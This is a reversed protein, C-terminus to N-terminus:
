LENLQNDSAGEYYLTGNFGVAVRSVTVGSTGTVTYVTQGNDRGHMKLNGNVAGGSLFYLNGAADSSLDTINVGTAVTVQNNTNSYSDTNPEYAAMYITNGDGYFIDGLADVAMNTVAGTSVITVVDTADAGDAPYKMVNGGQIWYLAGSADVRLNTIGAVGGAGSLDLHPVAPSGGTSIYIQDDNEETVYIVEQGLSNTRVALDSATTFPALVLTGDQDVVSLGGGAIYYAAVNSTALEAGAQISFSGTPIPNQTMDHTLNISTTDITGWEDGPVNQPKAVTAESNTDAYYRFLQHSSGTTAGQAVDSITFDYGGADVAQAVAGVSRWNLLNLLSIGALDGAAATDAVSVTPGPDLAGAAMNLTIALPSAVTNLPATHGPDGVTDYVNTGVVDFQATSAAGTTVSNGNSDVGDVEITYGNGAAINSITRALPSAAVAVNTPGQITALGQKLTFTYHDLRDQGPAAKLNFSGPHPVVKISLKVSAGNQSSVLPPPSCALLGTGVALLTLLPTFKM